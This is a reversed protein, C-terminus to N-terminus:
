SDHSLRGIVLRSLYEGGNNAAMDKERGPIVKTASVVRGKPLLNKYKSM